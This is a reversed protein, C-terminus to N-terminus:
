VTNLYVSSSSCGRQRSPCDMASLSKDFCVVWGSVKNGECQVVPTANYYAKFANKLTDVSVATNSDPVINSAALAPLVAYKNRLSLTVDFFDHQNNVGNGSNLM